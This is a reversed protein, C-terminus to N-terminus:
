QQQGIQEETDSDDSMVARISASARSCRQVCAACLKAAAKQQRAFALRKTRCNIHRVCLPFATQPRQEKVDRGAWRFRLRSVHIIEKCCSVGAM